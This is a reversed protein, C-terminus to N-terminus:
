GRKKIWKKWRKPIGNWDCDVFIHNHKVKPAINDLMDSMYDGHLKFIVIHLTEHTLITVLNQEWWSQQKTRKGSTNIFFTHNFLSGHNVWGVVKPERWYRTSNFLINTIKRILKLPNLKEM